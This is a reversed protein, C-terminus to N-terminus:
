VLSSTRLTVKRIWLLWAPLLDQSYASDSALEWQSQKFSIYLQKTKPDPNKQPIKSGFNEQGYLGALSDPAMFM